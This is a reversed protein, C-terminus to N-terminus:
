QIIHQQRLLIHATRLTHHDPVFELVLECHRSIQKIQSLIELLVYSPHKLLTHIVPDVVHLQSMRWIQDKIFVVLRHTYLFFECYDFCSEILELFLM